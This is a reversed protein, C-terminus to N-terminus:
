PRPMFIFKLWIVISLELIIIAVFVDVNGRFNIYLVVYIWFSFNYVFYAFAVETFRFYALINVIDRLVSIM